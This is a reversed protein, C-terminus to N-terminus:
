KEVGALRKLEAEASQANTSAQAFPPNGEVFSSTALSECKFYWAVAERLEALQAKLRAVEDYHDKRLVYEGSQDGSPISEHLTKLQGDWLEVETKDFVVTEM